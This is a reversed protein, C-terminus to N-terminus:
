GHGFALITPKINKEKICWCARVIAESMDTGKISNDDEIEVDCLGNIIETQAALKLKGEELLRLCNSYLDEKLIKGDGSATKNNLARLRNRFKSELIDILGAGFGGDDIFLRRFKVLADIEISRNRLDMLSSKQHEEGYVVALDDRGRWEAIAFAAKSKGFRAPDIGLYYDYEKKRDRIVSWFPIQVQRMVIEKAFYKDANEDFEGEYIVKYMRKGLRKKESELFELDAHPVESSKIVVKEFDNRKFSEFFYGKPKGKASSLLTIWGLGRKRPELLAPLISDWVKKGIHIAEDAYLFDVSSLGEIYIGTQGVPFKYIETGNKLRMHTLTIRGDYNSKSKGIIEKVKDFIYNEQRESAAVILHRSGPYKGALEVVRQAVAWSKGTQRGGRITINGACNIIRKQWDYYEM